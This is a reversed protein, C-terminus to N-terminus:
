KCENFLNCVCCNESYINKVVSNVSKKLNEVLGMIKDYVIWLKGGQCNTVM